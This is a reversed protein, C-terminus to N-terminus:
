RPRVFAVVSSLLFSSRQVRHHQNGGLGYFGRGGYGAFFTVHSAGRRGRFHLIAIDGPQPSSVRRGVHLLSWAMGSGSTAHGTQRLVYNVFDACWPRGSRTVNGMGMYRRAVSLVDSPGSLSGLGEEFMARYKRADKVRWRHGRAHHVRYHHWHHRQAHRVEHAEAAKANGFVFAAFALFAGLVLVRRWFPSLSSAGIL